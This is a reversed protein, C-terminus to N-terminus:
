VLEILRARYFRAGDNGHTLFGIEGADVARDATVELTRVGDLTARLTHDYATVVLTHRTDIAFGADIAPTGVISFNGSGQKRGFLHYRNRESALFYWHNSEDKRGFVLGIGDQSASEFDIAAIFRELKFPRSGPRWLLQAGAKRPQALSLPGGRTAASQELRLEAPDFSWQSPPSAANLDPDDAVQFDALPQAAGALTRTALDWRYRARYPTLNLDLNLDLTDIVGESSTPLHQYEYVLDFQASRPDLPEPKLTVRHIGQRRLAGRDQALLSRAVQDLYASAAGDQGGRINVEVLAALHRAHIAGRPDPHMGVYGGLGSARITVPLVRVERTLGAPVPDPLLGTVASDLATLALEALPDM